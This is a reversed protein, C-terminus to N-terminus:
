AHELLIKEALEVRELSPAAGDEVCWCESMCTQIYLCSRLINSPIDLKLALFNIMANMKKVLTDTITDEYENIMFQGLDFIPDGVVGKPDIIVYKGDQGLLINDPHLDGHLLMSSTYSESIDECLQKAREMHLYLEQGDERESMYATIRSIWQMYSPYRLYDAPEIHLGKYLEVLISLRSELTSENWLSTGPQILEELIVGNDLDADYVRCFRRGNYERLAHYETYIEKGLTGMKLVADGYRRSSCRFVCNISYSPIFRIRELEWRQVYTDMDSSLRNLVDEGFRNVAQEVEDAQMYELIRIM